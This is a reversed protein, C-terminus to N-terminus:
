LERVRRIIDTASRKASRTYRLVAGVNACAEEIGETFKKRGAYDIGKVFINPRVALIASVANKTAIVQSVSRLERLMLARDEWTNVPRNPKNVYADETLSVVLMSGMKRAERLHEIHGAHLIDFCGNALVIKM